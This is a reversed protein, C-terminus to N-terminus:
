EGREAEQQELFTRIPTLVRQEAPPEGEEIVVDQTLPPDTESNEVEDYDVRLEDEEENSPNNEEDTDQLQGDPSERDMFSYDPSTPEYVFSSAPSPPPNVIRDNEEL